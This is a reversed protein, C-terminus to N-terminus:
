QVSPKRNNLINKATKSCMITEIYELSALNAQPFAKQAAQTLLLKQM